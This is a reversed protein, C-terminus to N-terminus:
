PADGLAIKIDELAKNIYDWAGGEDREQRFKEKELAQVATSLNSRLKEMERDQAANIRASEQQAKLVDRLHECKETLANAEQWAAGRTFAREALLSDSTIHFGSAYRAAEEGARKQSETTL